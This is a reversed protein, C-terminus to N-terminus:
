RKKEKIHKNILIESKIRLLFAAALLIKSSIFFNSEELERIKEFYKKCLLGLDINWPDIQESSILDYIINQWSPDKGSVINFIQLHSDSNNSIKLEENLENTEKKVFEESDEM